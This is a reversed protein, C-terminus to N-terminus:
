AAIGPHRAVAQRVADEQGFGFEMLLWGGPRLRPMRPSSCAKSTRAHRGRGGFIAVAPERQVSPSLGPRDMERVYPPNAAILDFTDSVGDLYSTHVFAM